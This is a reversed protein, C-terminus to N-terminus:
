GARSVSHEIVINILGELHADSVNSGDPRPPLIERSKALFVTCLSRLGGIDSPFFEMLLPEDALVDLMEAAVNVEYFESSSIIREIETGFFSKLIVQSIRPRQPFEIGLKGCLNRFHAIIRRGLVKQHGGYVRDTYKFVSRMQVGAGNPKAVIRAAISTVNM